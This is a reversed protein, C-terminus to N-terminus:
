KQEEVKVTYSTISSTNVDIFYNGAPKDVLENGSKNGITSVDQVKVDLEGNEDQSKTTGDKLLYILATGTSSDSKVDYTIRIKGGSLTFSDSVGEEKTDSFEKVTQWKMPSKSVDSSQSQGSNQTSSNSSEETNGFLSGLIGLVVLVGVVTLIKHKAFWNKSNSQM